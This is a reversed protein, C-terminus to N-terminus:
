SPGAPGSGSASRGSSATHAIVTAVAQEPDDTCSILAHYPRGEAQMLLAHLLGTSDWHASDLFIMPSPPGFTEYHNQTADQFVEQATGASGPTFIVGAGAMSLLRDERISNAFYKAVRPAFLNTPEHGYFWTPVALSMAGSSHQRRVERAADLYDEDAHHPVSSLTEVARDLADLDSGSLFAGLNGAEMSGPGGGTAVLFGKRALAWATKAVMHFTPADRRTGHGGMIAVVPPQHLSELLDDLADDIAHDHIRQALSEVVTSGAQQAEEAHHWIAEDLCMSGNPAPAALEDPTYLETRFADYPCGGIRPIVLAGASSLRGAETPDDFTCGLFTTGVLSVSEWEIVGRPIHLGQIARGSLDSEAAVLQALTEIEAVPPLRTTGPRM